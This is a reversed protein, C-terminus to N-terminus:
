SEDAEVVPKDKREEAPEAHQEFHNPDDMLGPPAPHHHVAMPAEEQVGPMSTAQDAASRRVVEAAVQVVLAELQSPELKVTQVPEPQWDTHALRRDSVVIGNKDRVIIDLSGECAEVFAKIEGIYVRDSFDIHLDELGEELAALKKVLQPDKLASTRVKRLANGLEHIWEMLALESAASGSDHRLQRGHDVLGKSYKGYDRNMM